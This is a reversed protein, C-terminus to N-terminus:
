LKKYLWGTVIYKDDSIPMNGAHPFSELAPFLLLTGKKPIIKNKGYWLDTEGGKEVDNLYWLYTIVRNSLGLINTIQFDNHYKFHGENKNYKQIMFVNEFLYETQIAKFDPQTASILSNINSLYENIHRSLEYQLLSIIKSWKASNNPITFDRTKKVHPSYGSYTIGNRTKESHYMKIIEDCTENPISNPFLYILKDM